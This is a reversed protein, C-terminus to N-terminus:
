GKFTAKYATEMGAYPCEVSFGHEKLLETQWTLAKFEQFGLEPNSHINHSLTLLQEQVTDIERILKKKM